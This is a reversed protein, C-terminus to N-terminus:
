SEAAASSLSPCTMAATSSSLNELFFNSSPNGLIAM